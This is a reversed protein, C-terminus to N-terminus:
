ALEDAIVGAYGTLNLAAFVVAAALSLFGSTLLVLLVFALLDGAQDSWQQWLRPM